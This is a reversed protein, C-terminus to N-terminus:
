EQLQGDILVDVWVPRNHYNPFSKVESRFREADSHSQTKFLTISKGEQDPDNTQVLYEIDPQPTTPNSDDCVGFHYTLELPPQHSQNVQAGSHNPSTPM